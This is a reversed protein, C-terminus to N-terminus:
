EQLTGNMAKVLIFKITSLPNSDKMSRGFFTNAIKVSIVDRCCHEPKGQLSSNHEHCNKQLILKQGWSPLANNIYVILM